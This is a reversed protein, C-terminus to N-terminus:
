TGTLTSYRWAVVLKMGQKIGIPISQLRLLLPKLCLPVPMLSPSRLLLGMGAVRAKPRGLEPILRTTAPHLRHTLHKAILPMLILSTLEPNLRPNMLMLRLLLPQLRYSRQKTRARVREMRQSSLEIVENTATAVSEVKGSCELKSRQSMVRVRVVRVILAEM